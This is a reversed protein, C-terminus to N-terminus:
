VSSLFKSRAGRRTIAVRPTTMYSAAGPTNKIGTSEGVGDEQSYWGTTEMEITSSDSGLEMQGDGRLSSVIESARQLVVKEFESFQRESMVLLLPAVVNPAGFLSAQISDQKSEGFDV